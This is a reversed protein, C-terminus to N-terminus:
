IFFTKLLSFRLRGMPHICTSDCYSIDWLLVVTLVRVVLSIWCGWKFHRYLHDFWKEIKKEVEKQSLVEENESAELGKQIKSQVYITYQIDELTSNEPM